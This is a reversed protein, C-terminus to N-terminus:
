YAQKNQTGTMELARTTWIGLYKLKLRPWQHHAQLQPGLPSCSYRGELTQPGFSLAAQRCSGPCGAPSKCLRSRMLISPLQKWSSAVLDSRVQLSVVQSLAASCFPLFNSAAGLAGRLVHWNCLSSSIRVTHNWWAFGILGTTRHDWLSQRKSTLPLFKKMIRETQYKFAM